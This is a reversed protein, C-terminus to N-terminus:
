ANIEVNNGRCSHIQFKIPRGDFNFGLFSSLILSTKKLFKTKPTPSCFSSALVPTRLGCLNSMDNTSLNFISQLCLAPNVNLSLLSFGLAESFIPPKMVFLSSRKKRKMISETSFLVDSSTYVKKKSKTIGINQTFVPCRLVHLDKKSKWDTHDFLRPGRM